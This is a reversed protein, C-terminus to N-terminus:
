KESVLRKYRKVAMSRQKKYTFSMELPRVDRVRVELRKKQYEIAVNVGGFRPKLSYIHEWHSQQELVHRWHNRREVSM